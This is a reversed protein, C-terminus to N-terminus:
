RQPSPDDVAELVEVPDGVHLVGSPLDPILNVGFWTKGDHRRHRALSLLPEKGRAGSQPDVLTFACRGCSKVARFTVGSIRVRRWRDEAWAPAGAVVLNPRFRGMGLPGEAPRPGAAVWADLEALSEEATLMLPFGDALSVVDGPRAYGPDAGRVTPDALHLLRAPRGLVDGLWDLGDAVPSAAFRSGFVDAEVREPGTPAPVRLPARGPVSLVLGGGDLRARLLVLAPVQRGTLMVGHEDVVMWRRDGALGWPEVTAENLPEARGSKLPYRLLSTVTVTETPM